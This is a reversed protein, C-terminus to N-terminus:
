WAEPPAHRERDRLVARVIAATTPDLSLELEAQGRETELEFTTSTRGDGASPRGLRMAGFRAHGARISRALVGTELTPSLDTPPDAAAGDEDVMALIREAAEIMSTSPDGVPHLDLRQIRPLPEPTVLISVRVVGTAGRRWWTRDAPSDSTAAPVEPQAAPVGASRLGIDAAVREVAARRRDRPEDLDMNIAFVGDAVADDWDSLLGDVVTQLECTRDSPRVTRRPVHNARVLAALAETVVPRVPAYRRNGLGIVGLGTAPHWIMHSGFGPYGGAHGVMTGLNLDHIVALGYGYGTTALAGDTDVPHAPIDPLISRHVQQMERRSSRRLPHTGEPDDRAPWADLFGLVWTALDRVSSFLGGMSALAGYGDTGERVLRDDRRVYGHVLAGDPVHEQRFTSADM